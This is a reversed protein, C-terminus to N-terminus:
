SRRRLVRMLGKHAGKINGALAQGKFVRTEWGTIDGYNKAKGLLKLFETLEDKCRPCLQDGESLETNCNACYYSM